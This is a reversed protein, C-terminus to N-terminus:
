NRNPKLNSNLFPLIKTKSSSLRSRRESLCLGAKSFLRECPVSSAVASLREQGVSALMPFMYKNEKWWKLPDDKRQLKDCNLYKQVETIAKSVSTGVPQYEAVAKDFEAWIDDENEPENILIEQKSKTLLEEDAVSRQQASFKEAVLNIVCKKTLDAKVKDRFAIQKFRPDLFTAASLIDSNELKGFREDLSKYFKKVVTKVCEEFPKDMLNKYVSNLGKSLPIVLSASLYEEGSATKTVNEFPKLIQCLERVVNWDDTTLHSAVDLNTLPLTTTVVEELLILRELMYFTYNWRTSVDQLLKLPTETGQNQQYVILNTTAKNNTKFHDVIHKVKRIVYSVTEEKLGDDVICNITDVFCTFHKWGLENELATKINTAYDSVVMLLKDKLNWETLVRNLENALTVSTHELPLILSDLHLSFLDFNENLFHVTVAMFTEMYVSVWCETSVSIKNANTLLLHTEKVCNEYMAPLLTQSIVHREPLEYNPNLAAVFERFAREEVIKLPQYSEVLFRLFIEDINEKSKPTVREDLIQTEPPSISEKPVTTPTLLLFTSLNSQLDVDQQENDSKSIIVTDTKTSFPGLNNDLVPSCSM